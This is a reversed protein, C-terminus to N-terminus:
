RAKLIRLANAGDGLARAQERVPAPRRPGDGVATRASPAPAPMATVLEAEIWTALEPDSKARKELLDILRAQDLGGLLEALPKREIVKTKATNLGSRWENSAFHRRSQTPM